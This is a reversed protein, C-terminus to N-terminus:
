TLDTWSTCHTAGWCTAYTRRVCDADVCDFVLPHSVCGRLCFNLMDLLVHLSRWWQQVMMAHPTAWRSTSSPPTRRSSNACTTASTRRCPLPCYLVSDSQLCHSSGLCCHLCHDAPLACFKVGTTYPAHMHSDLPALLAKSPSVAACVPRPARVKHPSLKPKQAIITCDLNGLTYGREEMLRVQTPPQFPAPLPCPRLYPAPLSCPPLHPAPAHISSTSTSHLLHMNPSASRQTAILPPHSSCLRGCTGTHAATSVWDTHWAANHVGDM